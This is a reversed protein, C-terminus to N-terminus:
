VHVSRTRLCSCLPPTTAPEATSASATDTLKSISPSPVNADEEIHAPKLQEISVTFWVEQRDITFFKSSRRLVRFPGDYPHQLPPGPGMHRVFVHLADDLALSHRQLLHPPRFSELSACPLPTDDALTSIWHSRSPAKPTSAPATQQWYSPPQHPHQKAASSRCSVSSCKLTPVTIRSTSSAALNQSGPLQRECLRPSENGSWSCPLQCRLARDGFRRHYFCLNNSQGSSRHCAPSPSRSRQQHRQRSNRSHSDPRHRCECPPRSAIQISNVAEILADLLYAPVTVPQRNEEPQPSPLSYEPALTPSTQPAPTESSVSATVSSPAEMFRDASEVMVDLSTNEPFISLAAQVNAPLCQLFLLRFIFDEPTTGTTSLLHLLSQLLQSPKHDGLFEDRLLQQMRQRSSASLQAWLALCLKEFPGAAPPATLSDCVQMAVTPPLMSMAHHYKMASATIYEACWSTATSSCYGFSRTPALSPQLLLVHSPLCCPLTTPLQLLVPHLQYRCLLLVTMKETVGFDGIYC